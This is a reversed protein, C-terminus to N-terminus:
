VVIVVFLYKEFVWKGFCCVVFMSLGIVSSSEWVIWMWELSSSSPFSLSIVMGKWMISFPFSCLFLCVGIMQRGPANPVALDSKRGWSEERERERGVM